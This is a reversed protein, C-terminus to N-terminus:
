RRCVSFLFIYASHCIFNQSCCWRSSKKLFGSGTTAIKSNWLVSVREYSNKEGAVYDQQISCQVNQVLKLFLVKVIEHIGECIVCWNYMKWYLESVLYNVEM